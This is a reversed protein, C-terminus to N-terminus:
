VEVTKEVIFRHINEKLPLLDIGLKKNKKKTNAFNLNFVYM